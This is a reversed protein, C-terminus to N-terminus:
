SGGRKERSDKFSRRRASSAIKDCSSSAGLVRVQRSAPSAGHAREVQRRRDGARAPQHEVCGKATLALSSMPVAFSDADVELRAPLCAM